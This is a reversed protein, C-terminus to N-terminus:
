GGAYTIVREIINGNEDVIRKKYGSHVNIGYYWALAQNLSNLAYKTTYRSKGRGTQVRYM